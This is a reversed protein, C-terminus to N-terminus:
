LVGVNKAAMVALTAFAQPAATRIATNLPSVLHSGVVGGVELSPVKIGNANLCRISKRAAVNAILNVVLAAPEPKGALAQDVLVGATEYAAKEADADEACGTAIAIGIITGAHGGAKELGKKVIESGCACGVSVVAAIVAARSITRYTMM